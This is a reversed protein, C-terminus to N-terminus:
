GNQSVYFAMERQQICLLETISVTNM